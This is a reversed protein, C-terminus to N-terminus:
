CLIHHSCLSKPLPLKDLCRFMKDSSPTLLFCDSKQSWWQKLIRWLITVRKHKYGQQVIGEWRRGWHRQFWPQSYFLKEWYLIGPNHLYFVQGQSDRQAWSQLNQAIESVGQQNLRCLLKCHFNRGRSIRTLRIAISICLHFSLLQM